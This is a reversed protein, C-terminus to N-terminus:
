AFMRDALMVFEVPRPFLLIRPLGQPNCEGVADNGVSPPVARPGYSPKHAEFQQQGLPTMPPMDEGPRRSIGRSGESMDWIGSLDRPNFSASTGQQARGGQRNDQAWSATPPVIMQALLVVLAMMGHPVNMRM